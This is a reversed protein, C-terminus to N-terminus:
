FFDLESLINVKCTTNRKAAKNQVNEDKGPSTTRISSFGIFCETPQHATEAM